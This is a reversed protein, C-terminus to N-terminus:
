SIVVHNRNLREEVVFSRTESHYQDTIQDHVNVLVQYRGAVGLVTSGSYTFSKTYNYAGQVIEIKRCDQVERFYAVREKDQERIVQAQFDICNSGYGRLSITYHMTGNVPYESELGVFEMRMPTLYPVFITHLQALALLIGVTIAAAAGALIIARKKLSAGKLTSEGANKRTVQRTM